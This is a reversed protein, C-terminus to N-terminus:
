VRAGTVLAFSWRLFLCVSLCFSLCVWSPANQAILSSLWVPMQEQPARPPNLASCHGLQFNLIVSRDPLLSDSAPAPPRCWTGASVLRSHKEPDQHPLPSTWLLPSPLLVRSQFAPLPCPKWCASPHSRKKLIKLVQCM